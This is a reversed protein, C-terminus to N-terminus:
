QLFNGFNDNNKNKMEQWEKCRIIELKDFFNLIKIQNELVLIEM